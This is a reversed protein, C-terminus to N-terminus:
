SGSTKHITYMGGAENLVDTSVLHDLFSMIQPLTKDCDVYRCACCRGAPWM